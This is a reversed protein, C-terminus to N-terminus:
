DCLWLPSSNQVRSYKYLLYLTRKVKTTNLTVKPDNLASSWRLTALLNLLGFFALWLAFRLSFQSEHTTTVHIHPVKSRKTNLAMQPDNLASTEFIVQLELAVRLSIKSEPKATVQIHSLKLGNTNLPVKPVTCKNWIPRCSSFPQRYLLIFHFNPTM